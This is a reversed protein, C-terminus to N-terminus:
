LNMGEVLELSVRALVYLSLKAAYIPGYWPLTNVSFLQQCFSLHISDLLFLLLHLCWGLIMTVSEKWAISDLHDLFVLYELESKVENEKWWHFSNVQYTVFYLISCLNKKSIFNCILFNAKDLEINQHESLFYPWWKSEPDLEAM